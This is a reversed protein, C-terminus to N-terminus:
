RMEGVVWAFWLAAAQRLRKEIRRPPQFIGHSMFRMVLEANFLSPYHAAAKSVFPGSPPTCRRMDERWDAITIALQTDRLEPHAAFRRAGSWPIRWMQRRHPCSSPMGLTSVVGLLDTPKVTISGFPCQAVTRCVAQELLGLWEPLKFVSPLGASQAPTEALWPLSREVFAGILLASRIALATGKRVKDKLDQRLDRWGYIDPASDGRLKYPKGDM